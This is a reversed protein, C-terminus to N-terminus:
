VVVINVIKGLVIIIKCVMLGEMFRVVNFEVLVLVEVQECVVDVVVEIIGCLKGNVQVVLILVDCVLVSSDVQLFLQDELLMEGYGLVQWFVYSVYLMILNLLLVVVQLVEQCVVCGQESDDEFRVLVNMLEMVVVIVINFSYCCGYDDGVKGIIEYIKCCLVKQNVDLVVVDLVLVVGDVVYKQVQVWLCCLFCVMGDVGVENWELLQELLVVFMLFLCVIDVGYKGVMVQLDVGNNKLKFMKEIGGVVVLQGDVILIVGIICGCEDCQVEVDVLNIWDKLGDLNLCYYIEVIVMGQCLLNCVLENSDVMWVDCLLKYYFCFYMLYLIVYEIGGIYQDVLLWYNGCKDVVDCVGLLIYCVYYWSLEMFIDFIDIECEVVGGCELCIIKCWELDIKILLGIGFFVVDELLVVLLQEELVLVVGCKDCYIVLILCGWYCQCSVGWDCLCYNVCCQGQVKCEFCEVLVEFVGQFDLGDFEVLNVLEFVCSKDSYWDQWCSGDWNCEEEICLDKLVIVQKILLGYKNVVENDCQDYGLVVMVVGIGYGMLVFNVVWVLVLEGIVLYLVCLGIDMGCKEQIELEVEFVGGQKLDVLLVVLELNNKVVYLVLLYEVVILVFIVGMVMDLCIIFVCLLDLVGGDVDCVDFQIELGEFCGIWNCQMIKVLELWGDLEDLGDLLEQVYDIICLFWQLIECKEVLVGLCWGRGDIVQENVLVIQDVLDWNVVVNCCYVLGKCMLCIFMCQEYVYYDLCCIVFECLWDIVYGLLKLQSCMYDINKYIWVVLVIKNKIVVNEVLLGFVDWGMLQLVNYGIMCKYCSIVDGIMYNCVYGMYLVGFLYLFMLLCYYKLKDLIEDVEFVCIVDWYQQVVFEVQQLDYVNIEVSIM